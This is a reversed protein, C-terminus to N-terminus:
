TLPPEVLYQQIELWKRPPVLCGGPFFDSNSRFLIIKSVQRKGLKPFYAFEFAIGQTRSVWYTLDRNGVDRAKSGVLVYSKVDKYYSKVKEPSTGVVIGEGTTFKSDSSEIQFVLDERLFFSVDSAHRGGNDLHLWHIETYGGCFSYAYQSDIDKKFPFFELVTERTDGLKLPGFSEGPLITKSDPSPLVPGALLISSPSEATVTLLTIGLLAITAAGACKSKM